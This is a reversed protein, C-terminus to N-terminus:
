VTDGKLLTKFIETYRQMAKDIRYKEEYLGKARDGMKELEEPNEAM